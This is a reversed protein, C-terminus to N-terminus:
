QIYHLLIINKLKTMCITWQKTRVIITTTVSVLHYHNHNSHLRILKSPLTGTTDGECGVIELRM